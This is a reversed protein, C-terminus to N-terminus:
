TTRGRLLVTVLEPGRAIEAEEGVGHLPRADQGLHAQVRGRDHGAQQSSVSSSVSAVRQVLDGAHKALVDGPQDVAHGFSLRRSIWDSLVLSTSFRRLSTSAIDDSMRTGQHLRGVAQVVHPGQVVDHRRGPALANRALGHVKVRQEGRADAHLLHLTLQLLQGEGLEIGIAAGGHQRALTVQALTAVLQHRLDFGLQDLRQLFTPEFCLHRPALLRGIRDPALHLGLVHRELLEGVDHGEADDHGVHRLAILREAQQMAAVLYQRLPKM